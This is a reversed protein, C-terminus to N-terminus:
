FRTNLNEHGEELTDDSIQDKDNQFLYMKMHSCCAVRAAAIADERAFECTASPVFSIEMIIILNGSLSFFRFSLIQKPGFRVAGHLRTGVPCFLCDFKIILNASLGIKCPPPPPISEM